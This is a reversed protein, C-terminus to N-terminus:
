RGGPKSSLWGQSKSGFGVSRCLTAVWDFSGVDVAVEGQSDRGNLKAEQYV